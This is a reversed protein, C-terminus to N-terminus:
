QFDTHSPRFTQICVGHHFAIMSQQGGFRAYLIDALSEHYTSEVACATIIEEVMIVDNSRIELKYSILAGNSPCKSTFRHVYINM